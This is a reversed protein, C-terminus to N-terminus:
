RQAAEADLKLDAADAQSAVVRKTYVYWDAISAFRDSPTYVPALTVGRVKEHVGMTYVPQYLFIAPSEEVLIAQLREYLEQRRAADVTQRAEEMMEDADRNSFLSFNQGDTSTQTSHWFPYLDPDPSIDGWRYLAAQFDRPRLYADALEGLSVPMVRSPVGLRAEWQAAVQEAARVFTPDDPVVIELRMPEGESDLLGDGDSDAWGAQLLLELAAEPDYGDGVADPAYAWSAPLLPGYLPIGQGHLAEDIVDQRRVALSLARRVRSDDLPPSEVNLLLWVAEARPASYLTL